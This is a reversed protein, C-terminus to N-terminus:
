SEMVEKETTHKILVPLEHEGKYELFRFLKSINPIFPVNSAIVYLLRKLKAVNNYDINEIEPTSSAGTQQQFQKFGILADDYNTLNYDTEAKWFTARATYKPDQSEKLSGNFLLEAEQYDGENYLELGRYFTVKQYAVKNEFSKKSLAPNGSKIM